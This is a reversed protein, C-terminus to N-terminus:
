RLQGHIFLSLGFLVGLLGANLLLLLHLMYGLDDLDYRDVKRERKEHVEQRTKEESSSKM